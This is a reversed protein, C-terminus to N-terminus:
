LVVGSCTHQDVTHSSSFDFVRDELDFILRTVKRKLVPMQVIIIRINTEEKLVTQVQIQFDMQGLKFRDQVLVILGWDM